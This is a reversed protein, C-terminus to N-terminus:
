KARTNLCFINWTGQFAICYNIFEIKLVLLSLMLNLKQKLIYKYLIWPDCNRGALAINFTPSGNVPGIVVYFLINTKDFWLTVAPACGARWKPSPAIKVFHWEIVDDHKNLWPVVKECVIVYLLIIYKQGCVRLGYHVFVCMRCLALCRQFCVFCFTKCCCQLSFWRQWAFNRVERWKRM